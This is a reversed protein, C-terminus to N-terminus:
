EVVEREHIDLGPVAHLIEDVTLLGMCPMAGRVTVEDRILKRALAIAPFCPINPGHDSGASLQWTVRVRTAVDQASPGAMTVQMARWKSGLVQLRLAAARLISAYSGVNRMCGMRVFWSLLWIGVTTAAFGTGAHFAVSRVGAYRVPFLELDPVDCAGLWRRGVVGPFRYTTMDQWGYTTRWRNDRWENFPKGVYSLVGEMTALGPPRAGSSIAHDITDITAFRSRYRDVVASSLAPLTSAGSVILVDNVQAERDLERIGAVYGRGDAIDLYHCRARICARAVRYGQAQFPGATHIVLSAGISRLVKALDASRMDLQLPEGNGGVENAIATARALDRGAILVRANPESKLAAVIIRGFNGSGGLVVIAKTM